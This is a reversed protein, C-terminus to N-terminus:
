APTEGPRRVGTALPERDVDMAVDATVFCCRHDLAINSDGAPKEFGGGTLLASRDVTLVPLAGAKLARRGLLKCLQESRFDGAPAREDLRDAHREISEGDTPAPKYGAGALPYQAERDTQEHSGAEERCCM